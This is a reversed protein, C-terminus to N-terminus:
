QKTKRFGISYLINEAVSSLYTFDSLIYTLTVSNNLINDYFFMDIFTLGKKFIVGIFIWFFPKSTINTPTENILQKFCYLSIIFIWLQSIGGSFANHHKSGAIFFFDVLFLPIILSGIWTIFKRHIVKKIFWYYIIIKTFFSNFSFFYDLFHNQINLKFLILSTLDICISLVISLFFLKHTKEFYGYFRVGYWVPLSYSLLQLYFSIFYSDKLTV